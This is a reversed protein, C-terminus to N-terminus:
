EEPEMMDDLMSERAEKVSPHEERPKYSGSAAGDPNMVALSDNHDEISSKKKKLLTGSKGLRSMFSRKPTSFKDQQSKMTSTKM